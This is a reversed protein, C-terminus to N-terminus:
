SKCARRPSSEVLLTTSTSTSTTTSKPRSQDTKCGLFFQQLLGYLEFDLLLPVMKDPFIIISVENIKPDSSYDFYSFNFPFFVTKCLVEVSLLFVERSAGALKVLSFNKLGQRFFNIRNVEEQSLKSFFLKENQTLYLDKEGFFSDFMPFFKFYDWINM